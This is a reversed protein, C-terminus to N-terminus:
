FLKPARTNSPHSFGLTSSSSIEVATVHMASPAEERTDTLIDCM